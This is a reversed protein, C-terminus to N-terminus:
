KVEEIREIEWESSSEYDQEFEDPNGFDDILGQEANIELLDVLTKASHVSHGYQTRKWFVDFTREKTM